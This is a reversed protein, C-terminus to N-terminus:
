RTTGCPLWRPVKKKGKKNVVDGKYHLMRTYKHVCVINFKAELVLVDRAM